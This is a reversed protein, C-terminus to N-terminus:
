STELKASQVLRVNKEAVTEWNRDSLRLQFRLTTPKDITIPMKPLALSSPEDTQAVHASGEGSILVKDDSDLLRFNLALEGEGSTQLLMWLSLNLKAPFKEVLVGGVYIGILFHKRNDETRSDDSVIASTLRVTLKPYKM